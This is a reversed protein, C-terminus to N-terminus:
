ISLAFKKISKFIRFLGGNFSERRHATLLIIKKNLKKCENIKDILNKDIDIEKNSIKQKMWLLSDVVTNGTCFVKERSVGEALLNATSFPTPAFHYDAIQGVLKRNLEEPFPSKMNGTRLGAEVHGVPIQLYFASLASAMTTTTDGHVLVLRPKTKLFVDKIKQMIASQLYFLDQNEMMINLNFDPIVHFIDLVQQLLDSHQFTACLLCNIKEQKLALFLPILKVAEARTGVVLVIPNSQNNSKELFDM